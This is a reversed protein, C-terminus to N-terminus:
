RFLRVFSRRYGLVATGMNLHVRAPGESASKSVNVRELCKAEYYTTSKEEFSMINRM